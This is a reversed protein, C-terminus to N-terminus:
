SWEEDSDSEDEDDMVFQRYNALTSQLLNTVNSPESVAKEKLTKEDVHKLDGSKFSTIGSLLNSNMRANTNSGVTKRRIQEKEKKQVPKAASVKRRPPPPPYAGGSGKANPPRKPVPPANNLTVKRPPLAPPAKYETQSRVRPKTQPKYRANRWAEIQKIRQPNTITITESQGQKSTKQKRIRKELDVVNCQKLSHEQEDAADQIMQIWKEM